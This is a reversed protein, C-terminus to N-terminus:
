AVRETANASKAPTRLDADRGPDSRKRSNLSRHTDPEYIPNLHTSTRNQELDADSYSRLHPVM